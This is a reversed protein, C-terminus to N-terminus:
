SIGAPHNLFSQGVCQARKRNIQPTATAHKILRMGFISREEWFKFISSYCCWGLLDHAMVTAKVLMNSQSIHQRETDTRDCQGLDCGVRVPHSTLWEHAAKKENDHAKHLTGGGNIIETACGDFLSTSRARALANTSHRQM